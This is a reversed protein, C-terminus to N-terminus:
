FINPSCLNSLEKKASKATPTFTALKKNQVYVEIKKAKPLLSGLKIWNNEWDLPSTTPNPMVVDGDILLEIHDDISYDKGKSSFNVHHPKGEEAGDNCVVTLTQGQKNSVTTEAWGQWYGSQWVNPVAVAFAPVLLALSFVIKKM